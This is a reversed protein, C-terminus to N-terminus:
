KLYKDRRKVGYKISAVPGEPTQQKATDTQPATAGAANNTEAQSLLNSIGQNAYSVVKEGFDKNVLDVYAIPDTDIIHAHKRKIEDLETSGKRFAGNLDAVHKDTIANIKENNKWFNYGGVSLLSNQKTVDDRYKKYHEKLNSALQDYALKEKKYAEDTEDFKIEISSESGEGIKRIPNKEPAM